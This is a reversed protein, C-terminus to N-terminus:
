SSDTTEPEMKLKMVLETVKLMAIAQKRESMGCITEVIMKGFGLVAPNHPDTKARKRSNTDGCISSSASLHDIENSHRRKRYSAPSSTDTAEQESEQETVHSEAFKYQFPDTVCEYEMDDEHDATLPENSVQTQQQESKLSPSDFDYKKRAIIHPRLFELEKYLSWPNSPTIGNVALAIIRRGEKPYRERLRTWRRICEAENTGLERAIRQWTANKKAVNKYDKDYKNYLHENPKVLRILAADGM